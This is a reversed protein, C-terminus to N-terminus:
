RIFLGTITDSYMDNMNATYMNSHNDTGDVDWKISTIRVGVRGNDVGTPIVVTFTFNRTEGADISYSKIGTTVTDDEDIQDDPTLIAIYTSTGTTSDTTTAWTLGDNIGTPNAIGGVTDGDVFIMENGLATVKFKITFEVSDPDGAVTGNTRVQSDSVYELDIGPEVEVPPGDDQWGSYNAGAEKIYIAYGKTEWFDNLTDVESPVVVKWPNTLAVGDKDTAYLGDTFDVVLDYAGELLSLIQSPNDTDESSSNYHNEAYQANAVGISYWGTSSFSREFLKENPALGAKYNFTLTQAAGTKNNVFYGYLPEFETQGLDAM